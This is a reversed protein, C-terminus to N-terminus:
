KLFLNSNITFRCVKYGNGDNVLTINIKAKGNEYKAPINYTIDTCRKGLPATREDCTGQFFHVFPNGYFHVTLIVWFTFYLSSNFNVPVM